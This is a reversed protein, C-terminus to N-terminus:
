EEQTEEDSSDDSSDDASDEEVPIDVNVLTEDDSDDDSKVKLKIKYGEEYNKNMYYTAELNVQDYAVSWLTDDSAAKLTDRVDDVNMVPNEAMKKEVIDYRELGFGYKEMGEAVYFNTIIKTETAVIEGNIYEISVSKGSADAILYHILVDLSAHINTEQLFQVAEEVTAVKDLLVRVTSLTTLHRFDTNNQNLGNDFPLMNVSISLGKENLGDLPAYLSLVRLVDDPISKLEEKNYFYKEVLEEFTLDYVFWNIYDTNVTSISSYGNDPHNVLILAHGEYWDFNRGFIYGDGKDNPTQFATCAMGNNNIFANTINTYGIDNMVYNLLDLDNGFGGVKLLADVGDNGSYEVIKFKDDIINIKETPDIQKITAKVANDNIPSSLVLAFCTVFTLIIQLNKFQM